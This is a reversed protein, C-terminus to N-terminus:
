VGTSGFGGHGRQTDPLHEVEEPIPTAIKLLALQAIREGQHITFPYSSYNLLKVKVEGRYDSDLWGAGVELNHKIALGSRSGIRGAYGEPIAMAWGTSILAMGIEVHGNANITAPPITVTEVASLDYCAAGATTRKPLLAKPHLRQIRFRVDNM